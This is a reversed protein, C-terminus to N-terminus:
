DATELRSNNVHTPQLLSQLHSHPPLDFPVELLWLFVFIWAARHLKTGVANDNVGSMAEDVCLVVESVGIGEVSVTDVALSVIARRSSDCKSAIDVDVSCADHSM